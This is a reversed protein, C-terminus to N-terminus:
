GKLAGATLGEMYLRSTFMFLIFLPVTAIVYGAFMVGIQTVDQSSTFVRLVVTILQKSNSEIVMMPWIFDNYYEVAKLVAVTSLIPKILPVVVKVLMKVDTCGDIKAADFLEKPMGEISNRCLIIGMVQGNAVWHLVVAWRTNLLGYDIILNYNSALSLIGPIMMLMLLLTYLFNKGPFQKVAFVYGGIGSCILTLVVSVFVMVISNIMNGGLFIVATKYNSFEIHKPLGFFNNYMELTSKFSMMIMLMMPIFSLILLIIMITKIGLQSRREKKERVSIRKM